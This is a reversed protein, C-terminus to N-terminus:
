AVHDPSLAVYATRPRGSGAHHVPREEILGSGELEALMGKLRFSDHARFPRTRGMERRTVGRSGAARLASLLEQRAQDHDSAPMQALVSRVTQRAHWRVYDTAWTADVSRVETAYPDASLAVILSLRGAMEAYRGALAELCDEKELENQLEVCEDGFQNLVREAGASVGIRVQHGQVDPINKAVIEGLSSTEVLEPKVQQLEGAHRSRIVSYWDAVSSSVAPRDLLRPRCRPMHSQHILFRGLFGTRIAKKDLGDEYFASPTTACIMSLSPNFITRKDLRSEETARHL